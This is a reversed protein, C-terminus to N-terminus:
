YLELTGIIQDISNYHQNILYSNIGNLVDICATPSVLNQTGVMVASTGALFFEIADEGTVIGGMGIVPIKVTNAVEHTMRVAIPKVALGSLGGIFNKSM